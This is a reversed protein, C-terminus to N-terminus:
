RENSNCTNLFFKAICYAVTLALSAYAVLNNNEAGTIFYDHHLSM